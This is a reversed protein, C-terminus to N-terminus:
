VSHFYFLQSYVSFGEDLWGILKHILKGIIAVCVFKGLYGEYYHKCNQKLLYPSRLQRM